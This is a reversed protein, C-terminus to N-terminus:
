EFEWWNKCASRLKKLDQRSAIQLGCKFGLHRSPFRRTQKKECNSVEKKEVAEVNEFPWM